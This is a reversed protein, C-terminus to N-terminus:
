RAYSKGGAARIEVHRLAVGGYLAGAQATKELDYNTNSIVSNCDFREIVNELKPNIPKLRITSAVTTFQCCNLSVRGLAMDNCDQVFYKEPVM